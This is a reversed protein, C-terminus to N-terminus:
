GFTLRHVASGPVDVWEPRYAREYELEYIAKDLEFAELVARYSDQDGPLLAEVGPTDLYGDLFAGCNLALWAEARVHLREADVADRELLVWRAAYDFSRLMGTVDKMPSTRAIREALPRAPEGEFDLVYWGTDTRMVQGLHYDGHVRIAPGADAASALSAFVREAGPRLV